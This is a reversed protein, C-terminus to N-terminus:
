KALRVIYHSAFPGDSPDPQEGWYLYEDDSTFAGEFIRDEALTRLMKSQPSFSYVRGAAFAWYLTGREQDFILGSNGGTDTTVLQEPTGGSKDVQFVIQQNETRSQNDLFYLRDRDESETLGGIDKRGTVVERVQGGSTANKPLAFIKDWNSCYVNTADVLIETISGNFTAIDVDLVRLDSGDKGVSGVRLCSPTAFFIRTEDATLYINRHEEGLPIETLAGGSKPLRNLHDGRAWFVHNADTLILRGREGGWDGLVEVTGGEKPGRRLAPGGEGNGTWYVYQDDVHIWSPGSTGLDFLVTTMAVQPGDNPTHPVSGDKSASDGGSAGSETCSSLSVSVFLLVALGRAM